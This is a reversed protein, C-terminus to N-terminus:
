VKELIVTAIAHSKEHSLSVWVRVEPGLIGPRVHVEPAGSANHLVQVDHWDLARGVAKAFAEKAAWRGAVWEPELSIEREEPTLVREVFRPNAMAKAIRAIDVIDVGVGLIPM